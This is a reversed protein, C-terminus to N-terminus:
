LVDQLIPYPHLHVVRLLEPLDVLPLGVLAYDSVQHGPGGVAESHRRQDHALLPLLRLHLLPVPRVDRIDGGLVVLPKIHSPDVARGQQVLRLLLEQVEILCPGHQGGVPVAESLVEPLELDGVRLVGV